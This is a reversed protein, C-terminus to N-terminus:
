SEPRSRKAWLQWHYNWTLTFAMQLKSAGGSLWRADAIGFPENVEARILSETGRVLSALSVPSYGPGARREMKRTLVRDVERECPFRRRLAAIWEASPKNKDPTPM